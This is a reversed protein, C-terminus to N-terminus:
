LSPYDSVQVLAGILGDFFASSALLFSSSSFQNFQSSYFSVPVYRNLTWPTISATATGGFNTVTLNYIWDVVFITHLTDLLRHHDTLPYYVLASPM